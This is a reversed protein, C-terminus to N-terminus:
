RERARQKEILSVVLWLSLATPSAIIMEESVVGISLVTLLLAFTVFV